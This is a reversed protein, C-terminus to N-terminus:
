DERLQVAVDGVVYGGSLDIKPRTIPNWGRKTAAYARWCDMVHLSDSAYHRELKWKQYASPDGLQRYTLCVLKHDRVSEKPWARGIRLDDFCRQEDPCGLCNAESPAAHYLCYDTNKAEIKKKLCAQEEACGLCDGRVLVPCEWDPYKVCPLAESIDTLLLALADLDSESEMRRAEVAHLYEMPHEITESDEWIFETWVDFDDNWVLITDGVLAVCKFFEEDKLMEEVVSVYQGNEWKRDVRPDDEAEDEGISSYVGTRCSRSGRVLPQGNEKWIKMGRLGQKKFDYLKTVGNKFTVKLVAEPLPVVDTVGCGCTGRWNPLFFPEKHTQEM